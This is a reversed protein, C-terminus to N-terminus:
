VGRRRKKERCAGSCTKADSRYGVLPTGCVVCASARAQWDRLRALARLTLDEPSVFEDAYRRAAEEFSDSM